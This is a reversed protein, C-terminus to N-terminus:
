VHPAGGDPPAPTHASTGYASQCARYDSEGKTQRGYHVSEFARAILGFSEARQPAPQHKLVALYELNTRTTEFPVVHTEDLHCLMALYLQHIAQNYAHTKALVQAQQLHRQSNLLETGDATKRPAKPSSPPRILLKRILSLTLYLLVTAIFILLGIVTYTYVDSLLGTSEEAIPINLPSFWGLLHNMLADIADQLWDFFARIEPINKLSAIPSEPQPPEFAGSQRVSEVAPGIDVPKPSPPASLTEHM